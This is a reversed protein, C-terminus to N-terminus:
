IQPATEGMWSGRQAGAVERAEESSRAWTQPIPFDTDATDQHLIEQTGPIFRIVLQLTRSVLLLVLLCALTGKGGPTHLLVSICLDGGQQTIEMVVKQQKPTQFSYGRFPAPRHQHHCECSCGGQESCTGQAFVPMEDVCCGQRSASGGPGCAPTQAASVGLGRM